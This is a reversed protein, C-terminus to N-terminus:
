AAIPKSSAKKEGRFSYCLAGVACALLPLTAPLPVFAVEFNDFYMVAADSDITLRSMGAGTVTLRAYGASTGFQVDEGVRFWDITPPPGKLFQFDLPSLRVNGRLLVVDMSVSKVPRTFDLVMAGGVRPNAQIGLTGFEPANWEPETGVAAAYVANQFVIDATNAVSFFSTPNGLVPATGDEFDLIVVLALAALM